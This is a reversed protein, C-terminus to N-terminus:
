DSSGALTVGVDLMRRLPLVQIPRPPPVQAESDGIHHIFFPQVVAIAGADAIRQILPPDIFMVHELRPRGPLLDLASGAREIATLGTAVAENGVAHARRPVGREAAQHVASDLAGREWFLIGRHLMGARAAAFARGSGPLAVAAFGAGGIARRLAAAAARVVQSM